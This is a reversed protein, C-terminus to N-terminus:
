IHEEYPALAAFVQHLAERYWCTHLTHGAADRYVANGASEAAPGYYIFLSEHGCAACHALILLPHLSLYFNEDPRVLLLEGKEEELPLFPCDLLEKAVEIPAIVGRYRRVQARITEGQTDRWVNELKVWETGELYSRWSALLNEFAETLEIEPHLSPTGSKYFDYLRKSAASPHAM